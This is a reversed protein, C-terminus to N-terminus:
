VAYDDEGVYSYSHSWKGNVLAWCERSHLYWESPTAECIDVSDIGAEARKNAAFKKANARCDFDKEGKCSGNSWWAVRYKYARAM